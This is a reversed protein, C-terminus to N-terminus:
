EDDQCLNPKHEYLKRQKPIQEMQERELFFRFSFELITLIVTSVEFTAAAGKNLKRFQSYVLPFWPIKIRMFRVILIWVLKGELVEKRAM